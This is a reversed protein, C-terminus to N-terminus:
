GYFFEGEMYARFKSICDKLGLGFDAYYGKSRLRELMKLQEQIHDYEEIVVGKSNKIKKLHKKFGGDKKYVEDRDKKLELYFGCHNFIPHAAFFDPQSRSSRMRSNMGGIHKGLNMGSALDCNFIVDPFNNKVYDCFELQIKAEKKAKKNKVFNQKFEEPSFINQQEAM